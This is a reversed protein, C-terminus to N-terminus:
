ETGRHTSNDLRQATLDIKFTLCKRWPDMQLQLTSPPTSSSITFTSFCNNFIEVKQIHLHDTYIVVNRIGEHQLYDTTNKMFKCAWVAYGCM